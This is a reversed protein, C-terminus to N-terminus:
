FSTYVNRDRDIELTADYETYVIVSLTKPIAQAFRAELRVIGQNLVHLCDQRSYSKDPTLDFALLFYGADFSAKRVQHTRDMQHLNTGRFLSEFGRMSIPADKNTYDFDIAQSPVQIGNIVLYFSSVNCHQFNYPNLKRSGSYSTNEVFGILMLNPLQGVVANDISMTLSGPAVTYSKVEVRKYPYTAPQKSLVAQHAILINPNITVHNMYLTAEQIEICSTDAEVNSLVYFEPKELTFIIRLDVGNILFKPQNFLDGHIRGILEVTNSKAFLAKRRDLGTNKKEDHVDMQGATDLIWGSGELHIDAAESGYSLLNEFYSRYNYNNDTQAIPKNNLYISCQRFLSHLVNNVLGVKGDTHVKGNHDAVLRVKLRLYISSLDRYTDSHGLSLFEITTAKELSSLPKYAIEETKLVNTQVPKKAFLDLESKMCLM